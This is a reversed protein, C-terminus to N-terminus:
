QEFPSRSMSITTRLGSRATMARRLSILSAMPQDVARVNEVIAVLRDPRSDFGNTQRDERKVVVTAAVTTAKVGNM